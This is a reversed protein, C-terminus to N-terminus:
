FFPHDLLNFIYSEDPTNTKIFTQICLDWDDPLSTEGEREGNLYLTILEKGLWENHAKHCKELYNLTITEGPRNRKTIRKLSTQPEAKIYIYGAVKIDRALEDFWKNYINYSIKDMTKDDYLMKAFVARDSYISRETIIICNPNNRIAHRIKTIRTIYAMMQFQFAFKKPNDYFREIINNNNEDKVTNWIDVPEQIYVIKKGNIYHLKKALHKIATSKGSGINGEISFIWTM